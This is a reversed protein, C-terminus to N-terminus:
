QSEPARSQSLMRTRLADRSLVPGPLDFRSSAIPGEAVDQLVFRRTMRLVAGRALVDRAHDILQPPERGFAMATLRLLTEFLPRAARGARALAPDDTVVLELDSNGSAADGTGGAPRIAYLTGRWQGVTETGRDNLTYGSPMSPRLSGGLLSTFVEM